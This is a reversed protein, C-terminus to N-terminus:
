RIGRLIYNRVARTRYMKEALQKDQTSKWKNEVGEFWIRAKKTLFDFVKNEM